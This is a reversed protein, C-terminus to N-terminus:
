QQAKADAARPDAIESREFRVFPYKDGNRNDKQGKSEPVDIKPLGFRAFVSCIARPGSCVQEDFAGQPQRGYQDSGRGRDLPPRRLEVLLEFSSSSSSLASSNRSRPTILRKEGSGLLFNNSHPPNHDEQGSPGGRVTRPNRALRSLVRTLRWFCRFRPMLDARPVVGVLPVLRYRLVQSPM